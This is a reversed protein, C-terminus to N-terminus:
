PLNQFPRLSLHLSSVDTGFPLSDSNSIMMKAEDIKFQVPLSSISFSTMGALNSKVIKKKCSGLFLFTSSLLLIGLFKLSATTKQM